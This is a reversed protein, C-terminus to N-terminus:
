IGECRGARAERLRRYFFLAVRTPLELPLASFTAAAVNGREDNGEGQANMDQGILSFFKSRSYEGFRKRLPKTKSFNFSTQSAEENCLLAFESAQKDKDRESESTNWHKIRNPGPRGPVSRGFKAQGAQRGGEEKKLGFM